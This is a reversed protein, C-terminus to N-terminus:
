FEIGDLVSKRRSRALRYNLMSTDYVKRLYISVFIAAVGALTAAERATKGAALAAALIEDANGRGRHAM